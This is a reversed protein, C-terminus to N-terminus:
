WQLTHAHQGHYLHYEYRGHDDRENHGSIWVRLSQDGVTRSILSLLNLSAASNWVPNKRNKTQKNKNEGTQKCRSGPSVIQRKECRASCSEPLHTFSSWLVSVSSCSLIQKPATFAMRGRSLLPLSQQICLNSFTPRFSALASRLSKLPMTVKQKSSVVYNKMLQYRSNGLSNAFGLTPNLDGWLCMSCKTARIVRGSLALFNGKWVYVSNNTFRSSNSEQWRQIRGGGPFCLVPGDGGTRNSPLAISALASSCALLVQNKKELIVVDCWIDNQFYM